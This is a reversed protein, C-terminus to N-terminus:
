DFRPLKAFVEIEAQVHDRKLNRGKAFTRLIDRSEAGTEHLLVAGAVLTRDRNQRVFKHLGKGAVVPGSVNALELVIDAPEQNQRIHILRQGRELYRSRRSSRGIQSLKDT